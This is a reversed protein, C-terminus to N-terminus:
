IINFKVQTIQKGFNHSKTPTELNSPYLYRKKFNARHKYKEKKSKKNKNHKKHKNASSRNDDESCIKASSNSKSRSKEKKKSKKEKKKRHKKKHKNAPMDELDNM